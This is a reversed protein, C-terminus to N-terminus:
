TLTQPLDALAPARRHFPTHPQAGEILADIADLREHELSTLFRDRRHRCHYLQIADPQGDLGLAFLWLGIAALAPAFLAFALPHRDQYGQPEPIIATASARNEIPLDGLAFPVRLPFFQEIPE